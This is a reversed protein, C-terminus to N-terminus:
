FYKTATFIDDALFFVFPCADAFSKAKNLMASLNNGGHRQPVIFPILGVGLTQAFELFKPTIDQLIMDFAYFDIEQHLSKLAALKEPDPIADPAINYGPVVIDQMAYIKTTIITPALQLDRDLQRLARLEDWDIACLVFAQKAILNQAVAKQVVAHTGAAVGKGKLEINIILDQGTRKKYDTNLEALLAIADALTPVTQGHGLDVRQLEALTLSEIEPTNEIRANNHIVVIMDDKTRHVDFEVGDAGSLIAQRFALLTNEPWPAITKDLHHTAGMGRHGIIRFAM